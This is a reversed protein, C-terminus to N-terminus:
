FNRYSKPCIAIAEELGKNLWSLNREFLQKENVNTNLQINIQPYITSSKTTKNNQEMVFDTLADNSTESFKNEM